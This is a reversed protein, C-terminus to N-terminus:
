HAGRAQRLAKEKSRHGGGDIPKGRAGGKKRARVQVLNGRSNRHKVRYKGTRKDRVVKNPM